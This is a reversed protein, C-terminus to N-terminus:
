HALPLSAVVSGGGEVVLGPVLHGVGTVNVDKLVAGVSEERVVQGILSHLLVVDDVLIFDLQLFVQSEELPPLPLFVDDIGFKDSMFGAMLEAVGVVGSLDINLM